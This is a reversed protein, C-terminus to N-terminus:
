STTSARTRKVQANGEKTLRHEVMRTSAAVSLYASRTIGEAKAARDLDKLFNEEFTVSVRKAKGKPRPGGIQVIAGGDWEPDAMIDDLSMPEPIPEGDEVMGEIHLELAEVANHAAEDASQGLSFCGPFDPFSVGYDAGPETDIVAFYRLM